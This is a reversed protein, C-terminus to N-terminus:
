QGAMVSLLSVLGAVCLVKWCVQKCPHREVSGMVFQAFIRFSFTLLSSFCCRSCSSASHRRVKSTSLPFFSYRWIERFILVDNNKSKGSSIPFMRVLHPHASNTSQALTTILVFFALLSPVSSARNGEHVTHASYLLERIGSTLVTTRASVYFILILDIPIFWVLYLAIQGCESSLFSFSWILVPRILVTCLM